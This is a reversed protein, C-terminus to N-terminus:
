QNDKNQNVLKLLNRIGRGRKKTKVHIFLGTSPWFDYDNIRYHSYSLRTYHVGMEELIDVSRFHNSARKEKREERYAKFTEGIDTM